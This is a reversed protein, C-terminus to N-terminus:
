YYDVVFFSFRGFRPNAMGTSWLIFNFSFLFLSSHRSRALPCFIIISYPPSQLILQLQPVQFLEWLIPVPVTISLFLLVLPSWGANNLDALIGLLTWPVQPSKSDSLSWPSIM